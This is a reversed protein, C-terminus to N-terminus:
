FGPHNLTNKGLPVFHYSRGDKTANNLIPGIPFAVLDIDASPHAICYQRLNELVVAEHKGLDPSGDAKRLTLHFVGRIADRVVHKNTVVCPFATGETECFMFIYGSGSSKEGRANTCEIRVTSHVLQTIPHVFGSM